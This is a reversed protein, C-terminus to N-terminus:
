EIWGGGLVRDGAYFVAAQGPTIGSQPDAFLISARGDPLPTVAAPVERHRYRIRCNADIAAAPEPILWNINNVTLEPRRLHEKEGVM